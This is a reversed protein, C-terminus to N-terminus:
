PEALTGGLNWWPKVFTACTEHHRQDEPASGKRKRFPEASPEGMVEKSKDGMEKLEKECKEGVTNAKLTKLWMTFTKPCFSVNTKQKKCCIAKAEWFTRQLGLSNQVNTESDGASKPTFPQQKLEALQAKGKDGQRRRPDFSRSNNVHRLWLFGTRLFRGM